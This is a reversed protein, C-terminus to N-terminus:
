GHAAFAIADVCADTASLKAVPSVNTSGAVLIAISQVLVKRKLVRHRAMKITDSATLQTM